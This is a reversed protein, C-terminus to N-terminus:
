VSQLCTIAITLAIEKYNAGRSVDNVPKKFGQCIPGIAVFNGFRQMIKYGINGSTLDPFILINADGKIQSGKAKKVAVDYVVASDLQMEGDIIFNPNQSKIKNAVERMKRPTEGEASGLTSFSLLAVKPEIDTIQRTSKVTDYVIQELENVNPNENVACDALVLTGYQGFNTNNSVMIFFSSIISNETQGKIIQLAPRISNATTNEAGCVMGDVLDLEVMMTAFYIENKLLEAAQSETIGKNKRKIVLGSILLPLLESNNINVVKIRPHSTFNFKNLEDNSKVLFVINAIENNAIFMGAEFVEKSYGAEPLVICKNLKKAKDFLNQEFKVVNDM